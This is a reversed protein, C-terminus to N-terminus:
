RDYAVLNRDIYILEIIKTKSKYYCNSINIQCDCALCLHIVHIVNGVPKMNQVKDDNFFINM